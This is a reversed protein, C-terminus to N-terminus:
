YQPLYGAQRLCIYLLFALIGYSLFNAFSSNSFFKLATGASKKPEFTGGSIDVLSFMEDILLHVIFGVIAAAAVLQQVMPPSHRFALFVFAGWILAAPISHIMGRHVTIHKLILRLGFRALLYAGVAIIVIKSPTFHEASINQLIFAPALASTISLIYESPKSYPSDVDPLLGSIACLVGVAATDEAQTHFVYWSAAACAAGAIVSGTLHHVFNGM